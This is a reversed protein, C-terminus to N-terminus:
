WALLTGGLALLWWAFAGFLPPAASEPLRSPLGFLGKPNDPSHGHQVEAGEKPWIVLEQEFAPGGDAQGGVRLITYYTGKEVVFEVSAQRSPPFRTGRADTLLFEYAGPAMEVATGFAIMERRGKHSQMGVVPLGPLDGPADRVEMMAAPAPPETSRLTHGMYADVLAVQPLSSQAFVHSSFAAATTWSDRRKVAVQLMSGSAPVSSVVFTGLEMKGGMRFSISSGHTLHVGSVDACRTYPLPGCDKTLRHEGEAKDSLTYDMGSRRGNENLWVDMWGDYAYANCLRITWAPRHTERRGGTANKALAESDSLV